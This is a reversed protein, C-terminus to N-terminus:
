ERSLFIKSVAITIVTKDAFAVAVAQLLSKETGIDLASTAEDLVVISSRQLVARAMCLLQLQGASFNEGGERVEFDAGFNIWILIMFNGELFDLNVYNILEM